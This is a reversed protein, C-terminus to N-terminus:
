CLFWQARQVVQRCILSSDLERLGNGVFWTSTAATYYNTVMFLCRVLVIFLLSLSYFFVFCVVNIDRTVNYM